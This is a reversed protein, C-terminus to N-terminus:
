LIKAIELELDDSISLRKVVTGNQDILFTTPLAQLNFKALLPSSQGQADRVTIWPLNVAANQWSHKQQDFSVQYIGIKSNYKEYAKNLRMNHLVSFEAQYSTFDLLFPKGLLSTTSVSKNEVNPLTVTFYDKHEIPEQEQLMKLTAARDREAKLNALAALTFDNLQISRPSEPRFSNWTTGITQFLQLDKKNNIDFILYGDVKQFLAYYAATSIHNEVIFRKTQDKYTNVLSDIRTLFQQSTITKTAAQNQLDKINRVLKNHSLVVEKIQNSYPSGEVTYETSFTKQDADIIITETSDVSFNISRNNLRLRYFESYGLAEQEFIYDGGKGLRASDLLTIDSAGRKELYLTLTDANSIQGKITFQKKENGCSILFIISGLVLIARGIHTNM